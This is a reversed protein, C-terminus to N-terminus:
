DDTVTAILQINATYNNGPPTDPFTRVEGGLVLYVKGIAPM